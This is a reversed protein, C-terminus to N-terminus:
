HLASMALSYVLCGDDVVGGSGWIHFSMLVFVWISLRM